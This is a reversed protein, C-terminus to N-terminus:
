SDAVARKGSVERPKIRWANVGQRFAEFLDAGGYRGSVYMEALRGMQLALDPRALAVREAFALPGESAAYPPVGARALRRCLRQWIRRWPDAHRAPRRLWWTVLLAGVLVLAASPILLVLKSQRLGVRELLSRQSEQNYDIVQNQWDYNVSDWWLRMRQWSRGWLSRRQREAEEAGGALFARLDINVRDPALAATPDIRLWGYKELWVETWAHVDSQKVILYGGNHDSFEGGLYGVVIRSPVGAMRMLTAFSASFHECFGVRRRLVFDELAQPGQYEGPELTYSFGQTRVYNLAIQVLQEDNQTVSEWYDTLQRLKPSITAPLQLAAKRHSELLERVPPLEMRSVVEFRESSQVSFPSVLSQDFEPALEEGRLKAMLPLDLAPLWRKGHAELDIIQRVNVDRKPGLLQPSYSLRDGRTWRMGECHWLTLCRWYRLENSPMGGDPFRVRFSVDSRQAVKAINGPDLVNDLGTEGFRSRGLASGLDLLGRPFVFFLLVALPLAQAFLTATVRLPERVGPISRRFRVMCATISLVVVVTWVSRSLHNELLVACFALFWGILALVQFERPTRSELMKAGALVLLLAIGPEMGGLEGYDLYVATAGAIIVGVRVLLHPVAMRLMGRWILCLACVVLGSTAIYGRLPLIALLLAVSLFLLPRKPLFTSQELSMVSDAKGAQLESSHASGSDTGSQTSLADLCRRQHAPGHGARIICGPMRLEYPRGESECIEMWRALQAARAPEDLTLANWDLVVAGQVGSSWLKVMLPGGRAAARWDIHRPSDGARWERLGAFDDGGGAHQHYSSVAVADGQRSTDPAPLPLDGEAKPHVRRVWSTEVVCEAAFLGLPYVSRVLLQLAGGAHRVPPPLEVLVTGGAPVREVFVPKTAGIVFVELGCVPLAGTARLEVPIGRAADQAAPRAGALRVNLGHLNARAHLWSLLGMMATLLAILHAAGNSQAEAAYWMGTVIALLALTHRNWRVRVKM